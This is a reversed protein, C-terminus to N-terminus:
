PVQAICVLLELNGPNGFDGTVGRVFLPEVLAGSSLGLLMAGAFTSVPSTSLAEERIETSAM